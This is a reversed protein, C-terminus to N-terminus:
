EVQPSCIRETKYIFTLLHTLSLRKSELTKRATVVSVEWIEEALRLWPGVEIVVPVVIVIEVQETSGVRNEVTLLCDLIILKTFTVYNLVIIQWLRATVGFALHAGV